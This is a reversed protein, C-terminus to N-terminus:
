PTGLEENVLTALRELSATATRVSECRQKIEPHAAELAALSAANAREYTLDQTFSRTRGTHLTLLYDLWSRLYTTDPSQDILMKLKVLELIKRELMMRRFQRPAEVGMKERAMMFHHTARVVDDGVRKFLDEAESVGGSVGTAAYKSANGLDGKKFATEQRAAPDRLYCLVYWQVAARREYLGAIQLRLEAEANPDGAVGPLAAELPDIKARLKDAESEAYDTLTMVAGIDRVVSLTAGVSSCVTSLVGTEDTYIAARIADDMGPLDQAITPTPEVRPQPRSLTIPFEYDRDVGKLGPWMFNMRASRVHAQPGGPRAPPLLDDTSSLSLRFDKYLRFLTADADEVGLDQGPELKGYPTRSDELAAFYPNVSNAVDFPSPGIDALAAEYHVNEHSSQILDEVIKQSLFMSLSYEGTTKVERASGTMATMVALGVIALIAVAVMIEIFSFASRM